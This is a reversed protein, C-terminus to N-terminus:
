IKISKCNIYIKQGEPRDSLTKAMFRTYANVVLKSVSYDTNVQSWGGTTWSGDKVQELFKTMTRDILEETLSNVDELQQRLTDDGTRSRM